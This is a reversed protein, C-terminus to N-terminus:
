CILMGEKTDEYLQYDQMYKTFKFQGYGTFIYL